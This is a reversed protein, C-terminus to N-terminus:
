AVVVLDDAARTVGTYRWRARYQQFSDSEDYLVVRRWQSGQAKHVTLLYGYDFEQLDRRDQGLHEMSLGLMHHLWSEVEVVRDDDESRLRMATTVSDVDNWVEQVIWQSGNFLGLTKDNRLSILRDGIEPAQSTRGALERYRRNGAARTGNRGCLVQDAFQVAERAADLDGRRVLRVDGGFQFNGLSGGERIHTALRLVGSDRAQRHVETLVVDAQRAGLYSRARVPPLQFPDGLALIKKGFSAIDAGLREDVMSREDIVIGAVRADALPSAEWLKYGPSRDERLRRIAKELRRLERSEGDDLERTAATVELMTVRRQLEAIEKERSDGNPRYVLSHLTKADCGRQRLVHAAKGTLAGFLWQGPANAVLEAALSTKGTGAYGDLLFIQENTRLWDQCLRLALEQDRTRTTM